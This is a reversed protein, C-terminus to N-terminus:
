AEIVELMFDHLDEMQKRGTDKGLKGIFYLVIWVFPLVVLMVTPFFLSGKLSYRSYLMVLFGLFSTGIVFHIFMFFTWLQPKPGFLGKLKTQGEGQDLLELNLQPSWLHDDKKPISLFIHSGSIKGNFRCNEDKISAKFRALVDDHPESLDISFRPRLHVESNRKEVLM